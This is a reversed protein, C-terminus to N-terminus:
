GRLFFRQLTPPATLAGSLAPDAGEPTARFDRYAQEDAESSWVEYATWSNEDDPSQLVDVRELGAFTRTTALTADLVAAADTGPAFAFGVLAAIKDTM